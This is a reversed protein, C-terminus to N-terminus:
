RPIRRRAVTTFKPLLLVTSAEVNKGIKAGLLRLWGTDAPERVAPLPLNQGSDLLRETAWVQWGIRSRVPHYGPTLGISLLRVAVLTVVAFVLLSLITAVPLMILSQLVASALTDTDRIWWGILAIGAM